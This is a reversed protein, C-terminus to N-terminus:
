PLRGARTRRSVLWLGFLAMSLLLALSRWPDLLTQTVPVPLANRITDAGIMNAALIAQNLAYSIRIYGEQDTLQTLMIAAMHTGLNLVFWVVTAYRASIGISSIGLIVSANIFALLLCTLMTLPYLIATGSFSEPILLHGVALTACAPLLSVLLVPRMVAFLKGLIYDWGSIPRALYVEFAHSRIDGSIQGSGAIATMFIGWWSCMWLVVTMFNEGFTRWAAPPIADLGTMEEPVLAEQRLLFFIRSEEQSAGYIMSAFVLTPIFSGFLVLRAFWGKVIYSSLFRAISLWPFRRARRGPEPMRSYIREHIPM